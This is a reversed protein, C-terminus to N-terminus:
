YQKRYYAGLTSFQSGGRPKFDSYYASYNSMVAKFCQAVGIPLQRHWTSNLVALFFIGRYVVNKISFVVTHVMHYVALQLQISVVYCIDVM